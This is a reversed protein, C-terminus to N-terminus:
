RRFRDGYHGSAAAAAGEVSLVGRPNALANQMDPHTVRNGINTSSPSGNGSCGAHTAIAIVERGWVSDTALMSVASGSDGPTTDVRYRCSTAAVSVLVDRSGKQTQTFEPVPSSGAFILVVLLVSLTATLFMRFISQALLFAAGCCFCPVYFNWAAVLAFALM